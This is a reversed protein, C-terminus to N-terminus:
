VHDVSKSKFFLGRLWREFGDRQRETCLGMLMCIFVIGIVIALKGVLSNGVSVGHASLLLTMPRHFLYISFTHGALFRIPGAFRALVASTIPALNRVAIFHVAVLLGLGTDTMFRQASGLHWLPTFSALWSQVAVDYANLGFWVFLGGTLMAVCLAVPGSVTISAGRRHLLVGFSWIPALVLIAPGAVLAVLTLSIWRRRGHLFITCGFLTYYFAEYCLSWFPANWPVYQDIQWSENLFLLSSIMTWLSVHHHVYSHWAQPGSLWANGASLAYSFIIAPLVVSYLRSARALLYDAATIGPKDSSQAIVLGSLVFFLVVAEHGLGLLFFSGAFLGDQFMHGILVALAALFRLLDLYLSTAPDIFRQPLAPATV